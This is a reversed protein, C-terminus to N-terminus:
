TSRRPPPAPSAPWPAFLSVLAPPGPLATLLSLRISLAGAGNNFAVICYYLISFFSPPPFFPLFLCCALSEKKRELESHFPHVTCAPLPLALCFAFIHSARSEGLLSTRAGAPRRGSQAFRLSVFSPMIIPAHRARQSSTVARVLRLVRHDDEDVSVVYCSGQVPSSQVPDPFAACRCPFQPATAPAPVVHHTAPQGAVHVHYYAPYPRTHM